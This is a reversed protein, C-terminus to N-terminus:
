RSRPRQGLIRVADYYTSRPVKLERTIEKMDMGLALLVGIRLANGPVSKDLLLDRALDLDPGRKPRKASLTYCAVRAAIARGIADDPCGCHCFWVVRGNKAEISLPLRDSRHERILCPARIGAPAPVCGPIHGVWHGIICDKAKDGTACSWGM